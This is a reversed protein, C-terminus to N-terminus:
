APARHLVSLRQQQQQQQMGAPTVYAKARVPLRQFLTLHTQSKSPSLSSYPSRLHLQMFSLQLCNPKIPVWVLHIATLLLPNETSRSGFCICHSMILHEGALIIIKKHISFPLTCRFIPRIFSCHNEM